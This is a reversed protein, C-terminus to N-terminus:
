IDKSELVCMYQAETKRKEFEEKTAKVVKKNGHYVWYLDVENLHRRLALVLPINECGLMEYYGPVAPNILTILGVEATLHEYYTVKWASVTFDSQGLPIAIAIPTGKFDFGYGFKQEEANTWSWFGLLVILIFVVVFYTKTLM